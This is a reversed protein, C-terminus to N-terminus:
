GAQLIGLPGGRFGPFIAAADPSALRKALIEALVSRYDTTVRLDGPGELDEPRMGPWDGYVKGGKVGGGALFMFSARGHDTGFGSNEDIRRGFETQVLVTTRKGEAGLDKMLAQIGQALEGLMGAMWGDVAGQAVHTDWIGMDLCATELGFGGKILFATERLAQGYPTEPYQAGNEPRYSAPDTRNLAELVQMTDRGAQSIVDDGRSYLQKLREKMAESEVRLRHEAMSPVALASLAGMLSDPMTSSLAVARLPTNRGPTALIHRALWGGADAETTDALGKEMAAMAEFHSRTQDQSGVAQVAALEGSEFLSQIPKLAPHLVYFDDLALGDKRKIALTPRQRYYEDEGTPIVVNLGDAGGRLFIVVLVNDHAEETQFSAQAWARSTMWWALGAAGATLAARRSIPASRDLRGEGDCYIGDTKM